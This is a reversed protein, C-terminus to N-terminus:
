RLEVAVANSEARPLDGYGWDTVSIVLGTPADAHVRLDALARTLAEPPGALAVFAGSNPALLQVDQNLVVTASGEIILLVGIDGTGPYDPDDIRIGSIVADGNGDREVQSPATIVPTRNPSPRDGRPAATVQVIGFSTRVGFTTGTVVTDNSVGAGQGGGPGGRGGDPTTTITEPVLDIVVLDETTTTALGMGRPETILPSGTTIDDDDDDGGFRDLLGFAGVALALAVIVYGALILRKGNRRKRRRAERRARREASSQHRPSGGSSPSPQAATM